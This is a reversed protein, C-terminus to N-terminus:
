PEFDAFCFTIVEPFMPFSMALLVKGLTKFHCLIPKILVCFLFEQGDNLTLFITQKPALEVKCQAFVNLTTANALNLYLIAIAPDKLKVGLFPYLICDEILHM